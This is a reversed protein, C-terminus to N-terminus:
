RFLAAIRCANEPHHGVATEDSLVFGQFGAQLTDYLYCVESRTPTAHETMHELVQGAMIAPVTLSPVSKSFHSVAEAMEKIGVEAGLDGRCLWVEDASAAIQDADDMAPKRELKAILYSDPTFMKRYVVMEAADRVYSIAYRISDLNKTRTVIERDKANLSEIRYESAKLTIGKNPLIEGGRIVRAQVWDGGYSEMELLIKADNLVITKDSNKIANFFDLHPVPLVNNQDTSAAHVLTIKQGESLGLPLFTGLRWKSGQLDLVVPFRVQSSSRFHELKEIWSDLQSILLHSTNLRFGTIGASLMREWTTPDSSAPGLTAIIEYNM